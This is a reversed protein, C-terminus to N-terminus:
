PHRVVEALVAVRALHGEGQQPPLVVAAEAPHDEARRAARVEHLRAPALLAPPLHTA